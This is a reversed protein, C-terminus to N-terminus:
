GRQAEAASGTRSAGAGPHAALGEERGSAPKPGTSGAPTKAAEGSWRHCTDMIKKEETGKM